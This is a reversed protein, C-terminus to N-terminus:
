SRLDRGGAGGRGASAKMIPRATRLTGPSSDMDAGKGTTQVFVDVQRLTSSGSPARTPTTPSQSSMRSPAEVACASAVCVARHRRARRAARAAHIARRLPAADRPPSLLGVKPIVKDSVDRLWASAPERRIPEIRAFLEKNPNIEARGEYGTLGFDKAADHDDADRRRHM